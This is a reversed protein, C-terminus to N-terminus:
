FLVNFVNFTEALLRFGTPLKTFEAVFVLKSLGLAVRKPNITLRIDDAFAHKNDRNILNQTPSSTYSFSHVFMILSLLLNKVTETM